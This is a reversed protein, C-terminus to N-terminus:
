WFVRGGAHHLRALTGYPLPRREVRLRWGERWAARWAPLGDVGRAERASRLGWAAVHVLAIPAPLHRRALAIRNRLRLAPVAPDAIRGAASPRHEVIVGPAFAISYGLRALTFALDIEETSYFFSEDYGGAALFADRRLACAGGLFYAAPRARDTEHPAGRFPWESSEVHGDARRVLFALAGLAPDRAFADAVLAGDGTLFVADDDLFVVVDSSALQVLLNRGRTVGINEPERHWTVGTRPELPPQSAMDVVITEDFGTASALADTLEAPRDRALICLATTPRPGTSPAAPSPVVGLEALVAVYRATAAAVTFRELTGPELPPCPADLEDLIATALREADGVPALRGGRGRGILERAGAATETAVVPTGLALAEVAVTPMGETRSSLVCLDARALYPAVPEVHGAFRVDDTLGLRAVQAVLAAREPGDGLVLLRLPRAQRAIAFAAVTTAPDKERSLRGCAVLVPVSRPTARPTALWPDPPPRSAAEFLEADIVPSAIVEIGPATGLLARVDAAVGDSVAVIRDARGLFRRLLPRLARGSRRATDVWAESPPAHVTAVVPVRARGRSCALRRAALAVLTAYDKATVLAAVREARLYRALPRAAAATRGAGLAVVRVGDPVGSVAGSGTAVVLDVAFGAGALGGALGTMVREVGGAATEPLLVAVRIAADGRQTPKPGM